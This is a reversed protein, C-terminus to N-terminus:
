ERDEEFGAPRRHRSRSFRRGPWPRWTDELAERILGVPSLGAAVDRRGGTATRAIAGLLVGSWCAHRLVKLTAPHRRTAHLWWHQGNVARRQGTVAQVDVVVRDTRCSHRRRGPQRRQDRFQVNEKHLAVLDAREDTTLRDDREGTDAEAERIWGRLAEPHGGLEGALRKIQPKQDSPRVAGCLDLGVCAPSPISPM